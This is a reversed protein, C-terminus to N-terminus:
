SMFEKIEEEQALADQYGLEMIKKTFVEEFFFYSMLTSAEEPAGLGSLFYSLVRPLSDQLEYAIEALDRSPSIMLAEIHRLSTAGSCADSKAIRNKINLQELDSDVADLFIANIIVSLVRAFSPKDHKQERFEEKANRVGIALIKDCGLRIAPSLPYINRISGDGFYDDGIRVPPFFFPIASSAMVHDVTIDTLKACRRHKEWPKLPLGTEVFHITSSADYSTAAISLGRLGGEQIKKHLSGHSENREILQRLPQTDMIYRVKNHYHRGLTFDYLLGSATKLLSTISTNYIDESRLGGWFHSLDGVAKNFTGYHSALYTANIAGGSSGVYINFPKDNQGTIKRIGELVGIQYAARSGGGTLVLAINM